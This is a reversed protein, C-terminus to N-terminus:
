NAGLNESLRAGMSRPIRATVDLRSEKDYQSDKTIENNLFTVSKIKKDDRQNLISNVFDIFINENEGFIRKFIYDNKVDLIEINEM